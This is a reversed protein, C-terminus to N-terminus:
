SAVFLGKKNTNQPYAFMLSGENNKHDIRKTYPRGSIRYNHTVISLSEECHM